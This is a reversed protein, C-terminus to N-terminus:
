KVITMSFGSEGCSINCLTFEMRGLYAVRKGNMEAPSFKWKRLAQEISARVMPHGNLSKTCVVHGDPAVLVDIIATGKLDAQKIMGSIDQKYTARAKMEDSMFLKIKHQSQRLLEGGYECPLKISTQGAALGCLVFWALPLVTRLRMTHISVAAAHNELGELALQRFM